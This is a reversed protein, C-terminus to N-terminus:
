YFGKRDLWGSTGEMFYGSDEMVVSEIRFIVRHRQKNETIQKNEGKGRCGYSNPSKCEIIM